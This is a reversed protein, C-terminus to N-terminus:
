TQNAVMEWIGMAIRIINSTAIEATKTIITSTERQYLVKEVPKSQSEQLDVKVPYGHDSQRSAIGENCCSM